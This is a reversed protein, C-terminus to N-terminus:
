AFLSHLKVSVDGTLKTGPNEDLAKMVEPIEEHARAVAAAVKAAAQEADMERLFGKQLAFLGVTQASAYLPVLRIQFPPLRQLQRARV